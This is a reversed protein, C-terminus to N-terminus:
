SKINAALFAHYSRASADIRSDVDRWNKPSNLIDSVELPSDLTSVFGEIQMTKALAHLRNNARFGSDVVILPRHYKAAFITGHFSDTIVLAANQILWAWQFPSINSIISDCPLEENARCEAPPVSVIHLNEHRALQQLTHVTLDTSQPRNIVYVLVYREPFDSIKSTPITCALTPDGVVAASKGTCEAVLRATFDNRVSVADFRGVTKRLFSRFGAESSPTGCCAALSVRKCSKPLEFDLFYAPRTWSASWIQDSGVAVCDMTQSVRSLQSRTQCPPSFEFHQKRFSDFADVGSFARTDLLRRFYEYIPKSFFSAKRILDYKKWPHYDLTIVTHGHSKLIAQTAYAQLMGGYNYGHLLTLHGITM